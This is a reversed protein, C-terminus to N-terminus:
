PCGIGSCAKCRWTLYHRIHWAGKHPETLLGSSPTMTAMKDLSLMRGRGSDVLIGWMKPGVGYGDLTKLIQYCDMNDYAKRLELFVFLLPEQDVSELYQAPKLEM